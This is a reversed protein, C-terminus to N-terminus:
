GHIRGYLHTPLCHSPNSSTSHRAALRGSDLAKLLAREEVVGGRSIDVLYAGEKMVAFEAAGILNMTEPTGPVCVVVWDANALAEHLYEVTVVEVGQVEEDYGRGGARRVGVVEIDFAQAARAIRRGIRGYGIITMRSGSVNLPGYLEWRERHHTPWHHQERMQVATPLRRAFGLVMAMVYEAMPRTSIGAISTITVDKNEWLPTGQVHDAGSTDLQVWRLRSAQEPLPFASDTYLVEVEWWVNDPVEDCSDASIQSIEVRDSVAAIDDLWEPPFSMTSLVRVM